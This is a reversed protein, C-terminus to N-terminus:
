RRKMLTLFRKIPLLKLLILCIILEPVLYSANFILSYAYISTGEPVYSGFFVVGSIFHCIFRAVIGVTAGLYINKSFYGALGLAMYPLPYDFLVQLPSLIFPDQILNLLGYCFGTLFGVAPGYCFSILLLPLMGGPTVSGGQPLHYLKIMHLVVALAIMLGLQMVMKTTFPIKKMYIFATILILLAILALISNPNSIIASLNELM